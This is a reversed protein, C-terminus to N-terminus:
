CRNIKGKKKMTSTTTSSSNQKRKKNLTPRLMMGEELHHYKYRSPNSTAMKDGIVRMIVMPNLMKRLPGTDTHVITGEGIEKM